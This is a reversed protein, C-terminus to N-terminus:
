ANDKGNQCDIRLKKEFEEPYLLANQMLRANLPIWFARPMFRGTLIEMCNIARQRCGLAAPICDISLYSAEEDLADLAEQYKPYFERIEVAM